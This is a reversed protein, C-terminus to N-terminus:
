GLKKIILHASVPRTGGALPTITLSPFNGNPNNISITTNVSTTTILCTGFIQSSSIARGVVTAAQEMGNLVVVLQGAEQVSVQFSVEYTAIEPLNFTSPGLRQFNSNAIGNNPFEVAGGPQVTAPNDGPMLAYFDAYNVGTQGVAGSTGIIKAWLSGAWYYFGPTVNNVTATNYVLLATAPSPITTVDAISTLAVRPILLGKNPNKIDLMASGAPATGDTNIAVNQASLGSCTLLVVLFLILDKKM